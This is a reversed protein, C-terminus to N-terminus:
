TSKYYVYNVFQLGGKIGCVICKLFTNIIDLQKMQPKKFRSRVRLMEQGKRRHLLSSVKLLVSSKLTKCAENQMWKKEREQM